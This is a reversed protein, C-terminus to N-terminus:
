DFSILWVLNILGLLHQSSPTDLHPHTSILCICYTHFCSYTSSSHMNLHPHTSIYFIPIALLTHHSSSTNLYSSPHANFPYMTVPISIIRQSLHPFSITNIHHINLQQNTPIPMVLITVSRVKWWMWRNMWCMSTMTLRRLRGLPLLNSM